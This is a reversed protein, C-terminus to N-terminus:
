DEGTKQTEAWLPFWAKERVQNRGARERTGPYRTNSTLRKKQLSCSFSQEWGTEKSISEHGSNSHAIPSTTKVQKGQTKGNRVSEKRTM